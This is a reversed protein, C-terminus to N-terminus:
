VPQISLEGEDQVVCVGAADQHHAVRASLSRQEIGTDALADNQGRLYLRQQCDWRDSPCQGQWAQSVGIPKPGAKRTLGDELPDVRQGRAMQRNEFLALQFYPGIVPQRNALRGPFHFQPLRRFHHARAQLVAHPEAQPTIYLHASVQTTAQVRGNCGIQGYFIIVAVHAAEPDPELILFEVLAPVLLGDGIVEAGLMVVDGNRTPIDRQSKRFNHPVRFGRQEASGRHRHIEQGAQNVLFPYLNHQATFSAVLREQSVIDEAFHQKALLEVLKRVVLIANFRQLAKVVVKRMEVISIGCRQQPEEALVRLLLCGAQKRM